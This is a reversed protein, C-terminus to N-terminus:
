LNQNQGSNQILMLQIALHSVNMGNLQPFLLGWTLILFESILHFLATNIKITQSRLQSLPSLFLNHEKDHCGAESFGASFQRDQQYSSCPLIQRLLVIKEGCFFFSICWLIELMPATNTHSIFTIFIEYLCISFYSESEVWNQKLTHKNKEVQNGFRLMKRHKLFWVFWSCQESTLGHGIKWLIWSDQIFNLWRVCLKLSSDTMNGWLNIAQSSLEPKALALISQSQIKKVAYISFHVNKWMWSEGLMSLIKLWKQWMYM